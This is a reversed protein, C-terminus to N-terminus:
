MGYWPDSWPDSWSYWYADNDATWLYSSEVAMASPDYFPDVYNPM